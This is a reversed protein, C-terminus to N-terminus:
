NNIDHRILKKIYGTKNPVSELKDQIDQETNTYVALIHTRKYKKHYRDQPTEKKM